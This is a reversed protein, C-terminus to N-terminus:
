ARKVVRKYLVGVDFKVFIWCITGDSIIPCACVCIPMAEVCPKEEMM